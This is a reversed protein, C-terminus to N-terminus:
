SHFKKSLAEIAQSVEATPHTNAKQIAVFIMMWFLDPPAGTLMPYNRTLFEQIPLIFGEIIDRLPLGPKFTLATLYYRWPEEIQGVCTDTMAKITANDM